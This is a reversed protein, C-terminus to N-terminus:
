SKHLDRLVPCGKRSKRCRNAAITLTKQVSKLKRIRQSIESLREEIMGQVQKCSTREDLGLLARIDDLSFGVSQATRIFQLRQVADADYLRYGAKSRESPKLLGEREYYRLTSTAVDVADAIQGITSLGHKTQM